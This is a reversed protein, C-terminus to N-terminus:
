NVTGITVSLSGVPHDLLRGLADTTLPTAFSRFGPFADVGNVTVHELPLMGAVQIDNGGQDQVQYIVDAGIGITGAACEPNTQTISVASFFTPVGLYFNYLTYGLYIYPGSLTEFNLDGVFVTESGYLGGGYLVSFGYPDYGVNGDVYFPLLYHDSVGTYNGGMQYNIVANTTAEAFYNGSVSGDDSDADIQSLNYYLFGNVYADYWMYGEFDLEEYHIGTVFTNSFDPGVGTVSYLTQARVEHAALISFLGAAVTLTILTILRRMHVM